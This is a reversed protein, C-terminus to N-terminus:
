GNKALFRWFGARLRYPPGPPAGESAEPDLFLGWNLGPSILSSSGNPVFKQGAAESNIRCNTFEDFVVLLGSTLFEHWIVLAAVEKPRFPGFDGRKQDQGGWNPPHAM